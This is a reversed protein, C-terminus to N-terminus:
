WHCSATQCWLRWRGARSRCAISPGAPEYTLKPFTLKEPRDPIKAAMGPLALALLLGFVITKNKM